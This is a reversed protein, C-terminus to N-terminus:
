FTFGIAGTKKAERASRGSLQLTVAAFRGERKGAKDIWTCIVENDVDLAKVTMMPGGSKLQVTDGPNFSM